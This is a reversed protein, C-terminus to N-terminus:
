CWASRLSSCSTSHAGVLNRSTPLVPKMSLAPRMTFGPTMTLESTM